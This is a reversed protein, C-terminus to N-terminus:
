QNDKYIIREHRCIVKGSKNRGEMKLHILSENENYYNVQKKISYVDYIMEENIFNNNKVTENALHNLQNSLKVESFSLASRTVNLYILVSFMFVMSLLTVATTIEILSAGSVRKRRM